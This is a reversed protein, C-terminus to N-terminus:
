PGTAGTTVPTSALRALFDRHWGIRQVDALQHLSGRQVFPSLLEPRLPVRADAEMADWLAHGAAAVSADDRDADTGRLAIDRRVAWEDQLDGEYRELEAPALLGRRTWRSRHASARRFDAVARERREAGASILELQRVFTATNVDVDPLEDAGFDGFHLVPLTRDSLQRRADDVCARLEDADVRDGQAGDRLHVVCRRQWWGRVLDLMADVYRAEHTPALAVRLRGDVAVADLAGDLVLVEELMALREDDALRLYVQRDKETGAAGPGSAVADLAARAGITDHARETLKEVASGTRATQTTVLRMRPREGAGVREWTQAWIALTRWLDGSTDILDRQSRPRHKLQLVERASGSGFEFAVDDFVELSVSVQEGTWLRDLLGLLAVECQYLYGLAAPAATHGPVAM